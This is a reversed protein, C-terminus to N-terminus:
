TWPSQPWPLQPCSYKALLHHLHRLVQALLSHGQDNGTFLPDTVGERHHGPDGQTHHVLNHHCCQHPFTLFSVLSTVLYGSTWNEVQDLATSVKTMIIVLRLIHHLLDRKAETNFCQMCKM